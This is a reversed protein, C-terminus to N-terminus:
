NTLYYCSYFATLLSLGNWTVRDGSPEISVVENVTDDHAVVESEIYGVWLHQGSFDITGAIPIKDGVALSSSSPIAM